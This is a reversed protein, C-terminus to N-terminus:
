PKIVQVTQLTSDQPGTLHMGLKLMAKCYEQISKTIKEGPVLAPIGPPYFCIKEACIRGDAAEFPIKERPAFFAERPGFIVQPMDQFAPVTLKKPVLKRGKDLTTAIKDAIHTFEETADAYTVLFLVNTEDVLEVAIGAQRLMEGAEIGTIGLNKVNITVKTKDLAVVGGSGIMSGDLVMLGLVARLKQRLLDAAAAAAEIMTKGQAAIQARSADLSALLLYNPSTTTVLSMAAAMRGADVRQGQIHLMSCQTLAGLIKHTSQAVVDAGCQLASPPLVQSFGLHPGHAEDVLLVINHKHALQAIKVLDAALGFYNPSTIFVAKIDPDSELAAAVQEPTVQLSLNWAESYHPLLYVPKLGALVLGGYVSSHANRPLLIKDGPQLAGLLMAHLACTTGNVAFFSQKAGYLKAALNQAEKLCTSPEHIDDLESMLSVDSALAKKGLLACLSAAAGRGGKHGPTHLPYVQAKRYKELAEVLPEKSPV